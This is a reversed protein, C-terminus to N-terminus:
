PLRVYRYPTGLTPQGPRSTDRQYGRGQIYIVQPPVRDPAEVDLRYGDDTEITVDSM